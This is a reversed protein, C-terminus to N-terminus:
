SQHCWPPDKIEDKSAGWRSGGIGDVIMVYVVAHMRCLTRFQVPNHFAMGLLEYQLLLLCRSHICYQMISCYLMTVCVCKSNSCTAQNILQGLFKNTQKGDRALSTFALLCICFRSGGHCHNRCSRTTFRVTYSVAPWSMCTGLTAQNKDMTNTSTGLVMVPM